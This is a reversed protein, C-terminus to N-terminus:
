EEEAGGGVEGEVIGRGVKVIRGGGEEEEVEREGGEEQTIAM